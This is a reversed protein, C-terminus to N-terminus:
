RTWIHEFSMTDLMALERPRQPVGERLQEIIQDHLLGSALFAYFGGAAGRGTPANLAFAHIAYDQLMREGISPICHSPRSGWTYRNLGLLFIGPTEGAFKLLKWWPAVLDSTDYNLFFMDDPLTRIIHVVVAAGAIGPMLVFRPTNVAVAHNEAIVHRQTGYSLTFGGGLVEMVVSVDTLRVEIAKGPDGGAVRWAFTFSRASHRWQVRERPPVMSPWRTIGSPSTFKTGAGFRQYIM